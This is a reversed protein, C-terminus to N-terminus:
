AAAECAPKKIFYTWHPLEDRVRHIPVLRGMTRNLTEKMHFIPFIEYQPWFWEQLAPFDILHCDLDNNATTFCYLLYDAQGYRM